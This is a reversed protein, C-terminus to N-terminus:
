FRFHNHHLERRTRELSKIRLRRFGLGGFFYGMQLAVLNASAALVIALASQGHHIGFSVAVAVALLSAPIIFFVKCRVSLAIGLMACCLAIILM